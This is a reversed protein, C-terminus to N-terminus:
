WISRMENYPSTRVSIKEGNWIVRCYNAAAYSDGLLNKLMKRMSLYFDGKSVVYDNM